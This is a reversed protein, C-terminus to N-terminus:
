GGFAANFLSIEAGNTLRDDLRLHTDDMFGVAAEQGSFGLHTLLGQLTTDGTLGVTIPQCTAGHWRETVTGFLKVHVLMLREEAITEGKKYRRAAM